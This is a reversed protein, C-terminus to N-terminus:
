TEPVHVSFHVFRVLSLRTTVALVRYCVWWWLLVPAPQQCSVRGVWGVGGVVIMRVGKSVDLCMCVSTCSGSLRSDCVVAVTRGCASSSVHVCGLWARVGVSM